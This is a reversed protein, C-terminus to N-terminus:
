CFIAMKNFNILKVVAFSKELLFVFESGGLKM